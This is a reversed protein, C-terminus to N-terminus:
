GVLTPQSRSYWGVLWGKLFLTSQQSWQLKSYWAAVKGASQNGITIQLSGKRYTSVMSSLRNLVTRWIDSNLRRCGNIHVSVLQEELM